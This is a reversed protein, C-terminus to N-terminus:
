SSMAGGDSPSPKLSKPVQVQPAEVSARTYAATIVALQSDGIVKYLRRVQDPSMVPDVLCASLTRISVEREVVKSTADVTMRRIVQNIESPIIVESRRCGDRAEQVAGKAAEDIEKALDKKVAKRIAGQEEDDLFTVRMEIKSAGMQVHLADIQSQLDSGDGDAYADDDVPAAPLLRQEAELKDIVALLDGRGYVTVARETRKSGDLWADLDFTEPTETM